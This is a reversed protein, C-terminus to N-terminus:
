NWNLKMHTYIKHNQLLSKLTIEKKTRGFLLINRMKLSFMGRMNPDINPIGAM